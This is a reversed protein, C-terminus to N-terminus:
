YLITEPIFLKVNVNLLCNRGSNSLKLESIHSCDLVQTFEWGLLQRTSGLFFNLNVNLIQMIGASYQYFHYHLLFINFSLLKLILHVLPVLGHNTPLVYQHYLPLSVNLHYTQPPFPYVLIYLLFCIFDFFNLSM